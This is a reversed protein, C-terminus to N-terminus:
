PELLPPTWGEPKEWARWIIRVPKPKAPHIYKSRGGEGILM